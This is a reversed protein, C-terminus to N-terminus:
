ADPDDKRKEWVGVVSICEPCRTHSEDPMVALIDDFMTCRGIGRMEPPNYFRCAAHCITPRKTDLTIPMPMHVKIIMEM